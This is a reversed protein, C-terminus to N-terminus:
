LVKKIIIKVSDSAVVASSSLNVVQLWDYYFNDEKEIVMSVGTPLLRDRTSSGNFRLEIDVASNNFVELHNFSAYKNRDSTSPVFNESSSTAIESNNYVQEYIVRPM